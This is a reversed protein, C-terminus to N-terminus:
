RGPQGVKLKEVDGAIRKADNVCQRPNQQCTQSDDYEYAGSMAHLLARQDSSWPLGNPDGSAWPAGNLAAQGARRTASQFDPSPNHDRVFSALPQPSFFSSGGGAFPQWWEFAGVLDADSLALIAHGGFMIEFLSYRFYKAPSGLIDLGVVQFFAETLNLWESQDVNEAIIALVSSGLFDFESNDNRTALVEYIREVNRWFGEQGVGGQALLKTQPDGDCLDGYACELWRRVDDPGCENSAPGDFTMFCNGSPDSRMVPNHGAYAYRHTLYSSDSTLFNGLTTSYFRAHYFYAGLASGAEMQQGTYMKDTGVSGSRVAGYPWYRVQHVESGDVSVTGVTSGLHDALLYTTETGTRTAIVRGLAQYLVTAKASAQSKSSQAISFSTM